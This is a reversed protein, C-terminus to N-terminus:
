SDVVRIMVLADEGGGGDGYGAYYHPRVGVEEFGFRRYLALAAENSPRVELILQRLGQGRAIELLHCLLRWAHGRRRQAPHTAVNMVHLEDVVVWYSVYALVEGDPGAIVELRSFPKRLDRAFAERSWPSRYSRREIELIQELDGENAPRIVGIAVEAGHRGRQSM